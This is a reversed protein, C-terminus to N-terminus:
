VGNLKYLMIDTYSNKGSTPSKVTTVSVGKFINRVKGENADLWECLEVIQSKNSTFYVFNLGNLATLVNLYDKLTWYEVSNYTKVDTSLYPPDAIFLTGPTDRFQRCLESYDTRVIELGDLYGDATYDFMRLKNYLADKEFDAYNNTYKMSFRLLVSMTIWDVYGKSDEEKLKRLVKDRVSGIIKEDEKYDRLLERFYHLLENTKGINALRECYNDYDNYIVRSAPNARKALHSLLGSGGFLDVVLDPQLTKIIHEFEKVHRRKQGQFPLPASVYRKQKENM